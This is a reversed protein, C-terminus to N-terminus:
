QIEIEIEPDSRVVECNSLDEKLQSGKSVKQRHIAKWQQVSQIEDVTQEKTNEM